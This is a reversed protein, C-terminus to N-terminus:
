LDSLVLVADLGNLYMYHSMALRYLVDLSMASTVCVSKRGKKREM